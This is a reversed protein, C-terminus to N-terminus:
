AATNILPLSRLRHLLFVTLLTFRPLADCASSSACFGSM